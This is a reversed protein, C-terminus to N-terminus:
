HVPMKKRTGFPSIGGVAYGTHRHAAEPSAPTISRRGTARALNRTSVELDGHMLVILPSRSEDEMVLTKIVNHEPVGLATAAVRTGGHEEYPYFHETFAIGEARLLRTAPTSPTKHPLVRGREVNWSM